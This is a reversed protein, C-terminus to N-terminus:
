YWPMVQYNTSTRCPACPVAINNGLFLQDSLVTQQISRRCFNCNVTITATPFPFAINLLQTAHRIAELSDQESITKEEHTLNRLIRFGHALEKKGGLTKESWDILEWAKLSCKKGETNEYHRKLGIELSRFTMQLSANPLGYLYTYIAEAYIRNSNEVKGFFECPEIVHNYTLHGLRQDFNNIFGEWAQFQARGIGYGIVGGIIAGGVAEGAL